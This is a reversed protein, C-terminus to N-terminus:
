RRLGGRMDRTQRFGRSQRTENYNFRGFQATGNWNDRGRQMTRNANERGLQWTANNNVRGRQYSDNVNFRGEQITTNENFAASVPGWLTALVAATALPLLNSRLTKMNNLRTSFRQDSKTDIRQLVAKLLVGSRMMMSHDLLAVSTSVILYM